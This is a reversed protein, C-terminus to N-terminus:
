TAEFNMHSGYTFPWTATFTSEYLDGKNDNIERTCEKLFSLKSCIFSDVRM